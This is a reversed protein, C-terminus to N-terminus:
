MNISINNINDIYSITPDGIREFGYPELVGFHTVFSLSKQHLSIKYEVELNYNQICVVRM